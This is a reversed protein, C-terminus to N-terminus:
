PQGGMGRKRKRRKEEEETIPLPFLTLRSRRDQSDGAISTTVMMATRTKRLMRSSSVASPHEDPDWLRMEVHVDWLM